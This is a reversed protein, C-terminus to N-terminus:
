GPQPPFLLLRFLGSPLKWALREVPTLLPGMHPRAPLVVGWIRSLFTEVKLFLM